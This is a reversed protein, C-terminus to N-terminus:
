EEKARFAFTLFVYKLVNFICQIPWLKVIVLKNHDNFYKDYLLLFLVGSAYIIWSVNVWFFSSRELFVTRHESIIQYFGLIAYLVYILCYLAATISNFKLLNNEVDLGITILEFLIVIGAITRLLKKNNKLQNIYFASIFVFEVLIFINAIPKKIPDHILFISILVDFLLGTIAYFWLLSYQKKTGWIISIMPAFISTYRILDNITTFKLNM